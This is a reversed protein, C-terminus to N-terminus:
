FGKIFMKGRSCTRLHVYMYMSEDFVHGVLCEERESKQSFNLTSHTRIDDWGLKFIITFPFLVGGYNYLLCFSPNPIVEM